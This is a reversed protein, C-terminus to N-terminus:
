LLPWLKIVLEKGGFSSFNILNGNFNQIIGVLLIIDSEFLVQLSELLVQWENTNPCYNKNRLLVKNQGVQSVARIAIGQEKPKCAPYYTLYPLIFHQLSIFIVSGGLSHCLM